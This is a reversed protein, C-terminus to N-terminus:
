VSKKSAQIFFISKQFLAQLFHVNEARGVRVQVTQQRLDDRRYGSRQSEVARQVDIQGLELGIQHGIWPDM